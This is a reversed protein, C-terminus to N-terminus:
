LEGLSILFEDEFEFGSNVTWYWGFYFESYDIRLQTKTESIEEQIGLKDWRAQGVYDDNRSTSESTSGFDWSFSYTCVFKKKKGLDRRLQQLIFEPKRVVKRLVLGDHFESLKASLQLRCVMAGCLPYLWMYKPKLKRLERIKSWRQFTKMKLYVLNDLQVVLELILQM